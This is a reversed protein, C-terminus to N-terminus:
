LNNTFPPRASPDTVESKGMGVDVSSDYTPHISFGRRADATETRARESGRKLGM